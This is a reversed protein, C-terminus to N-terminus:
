NKTKEYKMSSFFKQVEKDAVVDAVVVEQNSDIRDISVFLVIVDNEDEELVINLYLGSTYEGYAYANYKGFEYEKYYKQASRTEKSKDFTAKRMRNYYMEYELDQDTNNFEIAVSAGGTEEKVESYNSEKDCTFTTTGYDLDKLEIIKEKSSTPKEKSTCATLTLVLVPILLLLLLKNKM